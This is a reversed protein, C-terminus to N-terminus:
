NNLKRKIQLTNNLKKEFEDKSVMYEDVLGYKKLGDIAISRIRTIYDNLNSLYNNDPYLKIGHQYENLEIGLKLALEEHFRIEDHDKIGSKFSIEIYNDKISGDKNFRIQFGITKVKRASDGKKFLPLYIYNSGQFWQGVELRSEKSQVSNRSRLSFTFEPNEERFKLLTTLLEDSIKIINQKQLDM